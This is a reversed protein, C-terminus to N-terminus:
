EPKPPTPEEQPPAPEIRNAEAEERDAKAAEDFPVSFGVFNQGLASGFLNGFLGIVNGVATDAELSILATSGIQQISTKEFLKNADNALIQREGLGDVNELREQQRQFMFRKFIALVAALIRLKKKATVEDSCPVAFRVRVLHPNAREIAVIVYDAQDAVARMTRALVGISGPDDKLTELRDFLIDARVFFIMQSGGLAPLSRSLPHPRDTEKEAKRDITREISDRGGIVYRRDDAQWVVITGSDLLLDYSVDQHTLQQTQINGKDKVETWPTSKSLHFINLDFVLGSGVNLLGEPRDEAIFSIQDLEEVPFPFTRSMSGLVNKQVVALERKTFFGIPRCIAGAPTDRPLFEIQFPSVAETPSSEQAQIWSCGVLSIAWVFRRVLPTTMM